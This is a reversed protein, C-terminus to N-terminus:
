QTEIESVAICQIEETTQRWLAEIFTGELYSM